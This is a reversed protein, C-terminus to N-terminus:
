AMAWGSVMLFIRGHTPDLPVPESLTNPMAAAVAEIACSASPREALVLPDRLLATRSM